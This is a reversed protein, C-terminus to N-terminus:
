GAILSTLITAQKEAEALLPECGSGDRVRLKETLESLPRHIPVLALNAYVGKLAHALEFAEDLNGADLAKHLAALKGDGLAMQILKFYLNENNMCRALGEDCNAGFESLSERSLM